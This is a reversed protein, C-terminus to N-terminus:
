KKILESPLVFKYGIKRYKIIEQQLLQFEDTTIVFEANEGRKTKEIVNQFDKLANYNNKGTLDSLSDEPVLCIKRKSFEEKLLPYVASSFLNSKNDIIFISTNSYKGLINRISSKLRAKSYKRNLKFELDAIDDNLLIGYRKKYYSLTPLVGSSEKSPILLLEFTEPISLFKKFSENNLNTIGTIFIGVRGANRNISEDYYFEATLKLSNGASIELLTKGNIKQEKSKINVEYPSFSIFIERLIVPIPLDSPVAVKYTILGKEGASLSKKEKEAPRIWSNEFGFNLLSEKFIKEIGASNIEKKNKVKKTEDHWALELVLYAILLIVVAAFLSVLIKRKSSSIGNIFSNM